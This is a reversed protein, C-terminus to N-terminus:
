TNGKWKQEWEVKPSTYRSVGLQAAIDKRKMEGGIAKWVEFAADRRPGRQRPM